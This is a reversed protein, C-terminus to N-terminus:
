TSGESDTKQIQEYYQKLCAENTPSSRKVSNPIMTGSLKVSHPDSTVSIWVPDIKVFIVRNRRVSLKGIKAM